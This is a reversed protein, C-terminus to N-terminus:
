CLYILVFICCAFTCYDVCQGLRKSTGSSSALWRLALSGWKQSGTMSLFTRLNVCLGEDRWWCRNFRLQHWALWNLVSNMDWGSSSNDWSSCCSMYMYVTCACVRQWAVEKVIKSTADWEAIVGLCYWSADSTMCAHMGAWHKWPCSQGGCSQATTTDQSIRPNSWKCLKVAQGVVRRFRRVQRLTLDYLEVGKTDKFRIAVQSKAKEGPCRTMYMNCCDGVNPLCVKQRSM